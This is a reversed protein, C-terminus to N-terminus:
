KTLTLTATYKNDGCAATLYYVGAPEDLKISYIKNASINLEKVKEGLVNSVTVHVDATLDTTLKLKFEEQTPNPYVLLGSASGGIEDIANGTGLQIAWSKTSVGCTNSVTYYITDRGFRTVVFTGYTLAPSLFPSDAYSVFTGMKYNSATYVGHAPLGRFRYEGGLAVIEPGTLTANPASNVYIIKSVTSTGFANTATHYVTDFGAILGSVVGSASVTARNITDGTAISWVGGVTDAFTVTSGACVSDPGTIVGPNTVGVHLTITSYSTGCTNTVSYSITSTGTAVGHVVGAVSGFRAIATNSSSWTGNITGNGLTLDAGVGVSDGGTIPGAPVTIAVTHSAISAGCANSLFYSISAIGQSVGTVNGSADVIAVASSGSFWVGGSGSTSLHIWTGACVSGAGSIVGPNLVTDISISLTSTITGCANTFDYSIIDTGHSVGTVNGSSSITANGNSASWVWSGATNANTLLIHNGVCTSTPGTIPMATAFSDVRVIATATTTGCVNSLSYSVTEVGRSIGSVYGDTGVSAVTTSSGSWSGGTSSSSLSISSGVCIPTAGTITASPVNIVTLMASISTDSGSANTTIARFINGSISNAATVSLTDNTTGSFFLTDTLTAWTTGGNSSVQWHFSLPLAGTDAVTFIIHAGNCATTDRPDSTIGAAKVSVSSLFFCLALLGPLYITKKM